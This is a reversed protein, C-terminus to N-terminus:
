VAIEAELDVGEETTAPPESIWELLGFVNPKPRNFIQGKRVYSAISGSVSLRNAKTTEMSMAKLLDTIHLPSGTKRLADRAKAMTSGERLNAETFAGIDEHRPLLKAMDELAQMYAEAGILQNKLDSITAQQKQMRKKLEEPLGM